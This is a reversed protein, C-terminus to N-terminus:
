VGSFMLKFLSAEKKSKFFFDHHQALYQCEREHLWTHAATHYPDDDAIITVMDPEPTIRWGLAEKILASDGFVFWGSGGELIFWAPGSHRVAFRPLRYDLAEQEVFVQREDDWALYENTPTRAYARRRPEPLLISLLM